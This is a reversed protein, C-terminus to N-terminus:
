EGTSEKSQQQLTMIMLTDLSHSSNLALRSLTEWYKISELLEYSYDLRLFDSDYKNILMICPDSPITFNRSKVAPYIGNIERGILRQTNESLLFSIAQKTLITEEVGNPTALCRYTYLPKVFDYYNTMNAMDLNLSNEIFFDAGTQAPEKSIELIGMEYLSRQLTLSNIFANNEGTEDHLYYNQLLRIINYDYPNWSYSHPSEALIQNLAMPQKLSSKLSFLSTISFTYDIKERIYHSIFPSNWDDFVVIHPLQKKQIIRNALEKSPNESPIPVFRLGHYHCFQELRERTLLDNKHYLLILEEEQSIEGYIDIRSPDEFRYDGRSLYFSDKTFVLYLTDLIGSPEELTIRNRGGYADIQYVDEFLPIIRSFLLTYTGSRDDKVAYDRLEERTFYRSFEDNIYLELSFVCGLLLTFIILSFFLKKM